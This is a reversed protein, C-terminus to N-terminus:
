FFLISYLPQLRVSFDKTLDETKVLGGKHKSTFLQTAKKFKDDGIHRYLMWLYLSAKGQTVLKVLSSHVVSDPQSFTFKVPSDNIQDLINLRRSPSRIM